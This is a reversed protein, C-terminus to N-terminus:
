PLSVSQRSVPTINHTINHSINHPSPTYHHHTHHQTHHKTHHQHSHHHQIISIISNPPKPLLCVFLCVSLRVFPCKSNYLRKRSQFYMGHAQAQCSCYFATFCVNADSIFHTHHPTYHQNLTPLYLDYGEHCLMVLVAACLQCLVCM